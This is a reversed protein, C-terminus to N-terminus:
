SDFAIRFGQNGSSSDPSNKTRAAVRYRNCYSAHCLYSGGRMVRMSDASTLPEVAPNDPQGANWPDACMEWVNGAMNYLGYGNPPFSKAPATGMYGDEATNKTPFQGQWINCMHQGNPTLEDGWAYRAQVLGGRAAYEWEAESPLRGGAWTAYTEADRWSVHVVPHDIRDSIHSGPGEPHAWDAGHVAMWWPVDPVPRASRRVSPPLFAWFVFSWGFEEAETVYGTQDVFMAFERNTVTTAGIGFPHVDVERVPSEGDLANADPDAGGM